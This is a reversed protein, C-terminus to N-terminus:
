RELESVRQRLSALAAELAAPSCSPMALLDTASELTAAAALKVACVHEDPSAGPSGPSSRLVITNLWRLEDVLRVIARASTSLGTPRFPTAFFTRRLDEDAADARAIAADHAPQASPRRGGVIYEVDARLRAAVARCADIAAGRIPDHAPAPWLLTIALLSAGSALGWGALRDPISAVPGPLAVPLVFSLLLSTTASALVSSIVGAFLVGFAVVATVVAALWTTTSVLTGLSILVGCGLALAAQSQLRDRIPGRFDVLLLMAFSGFAAFTAVAPSKIVQSGVALASPMIIAARTARRLASFGPDHRRLWEWGAVPRRPLDLSLAAM